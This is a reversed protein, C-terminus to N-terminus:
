EGAYLSIAAIEADSLGAKSAAQKGQLSGDRFALLKKQMDAPTMGKLPPHGGVGQGLNGHCSQCKATYVDLGYPQEAPPLANLVFWPESGTYAARGQGTADDGPPTSDGCATLATLAILSLALLFSKM